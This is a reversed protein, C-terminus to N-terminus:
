EIITFEGNIIKTNELNDSVKIRISHTGTKLKSQLKSKVFNRHDIYDFYHVKDNLYIEITHPNIGSLDDNINFSINDIDDIKYKSKFTPYINYFFPKENEKLICYVGGSAINVSKKETTIIDIFKWKNTHKSFQYFGYIDKEKNNYTLKIKNKFSIDDPYISIINSIKIFKKPIDINPNEVIILNQNYFSNENAEIIFNNFEYNSNQIPLYSNIIKSFSITDSNNKYLLEILDIKKPDIIKTSIINKDLRFIEYNTKVSDSTIYLEPKYGSFKDEKFEISFGIEHYRINFNGSIKNINIKSLAHYEKKSKLGNSNITYYEFLDTEPNFYNNIQFTNKNIQTISKKPNKNVSNYKSMENVYLRDNNNDNFTIYQKENKELIQIKTGKSIDGFLVGQVQTINNNYDSINITFNHYNKDILIKGNNKLIKIFSLNNKKDNYLKHSIIKNEKLLSYDIDSYILYDEYFSYKDYIIQYIIDNDLILEIKYIGFKFPLENILDHSEISLGVEGSISITDNIVYKYNSIKDLLFKEKTQIGNIHSYPGLPDIYLSKVIPNITDNINYYKLPNIPSGNNDRIEFHIHPGSLSGSDGCYGIIDGKSFYIRRNKNFSHDIFNSKYKQRLKQIENEIENSFSDLHSYLVTNGDELTLYIAKGYNYPDVKIRSIYGSEIAYINSGIEGYTRIDIGAHFRRSRPEGFTTTIKEDYDNPWLYNNSESFIFSFFLTTILFIINL